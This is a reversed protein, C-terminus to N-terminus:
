NNLIIRFTTGKGLESQLVMIKGKHYQEVIRRALSLGLGWGRSKTTFGPKFVNKFDARPIGKGNDKVDIFAKGKETTLLVEIIGNNSIADLANKILNEIVWGFLNPNIPAQISATKKFHLSVTTPIRTKMYQVVNGIIDNLDSAILVPQSGINSFRETIMELRKVDKDLEDIIAPSIEKERLLEVWAMLSSTPTGLQHATERSLGVWVKNQEAKRSASFALYSVIIFAIIVSLQVYPYISLRKLIVSERYFLYNKQDGGFDIEIFTGSERMNNLQRQLYKANRVKVFNRSALTDFNQDTLIVPITTNGMTVKLLFDLYQEHNQSTDSIGMLKTAEAWLEIKKREEASLQDVLKGTYFLSGAGIIVSALFLFYKWRQKISYIDFAQM